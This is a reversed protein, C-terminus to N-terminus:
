ASRVETPASTQRARMRLQAVAEEGSIYISRHGGRALAALAQLLLTSKGIGPDGAVLLASGPVLGGGCVRDFEAIGSATRASEESAGQMNALEIHRGKGRGLGRPVTEAPAEEVISNWEGCSDCRGSWKRSSAGCQQCVYHGQDRPM